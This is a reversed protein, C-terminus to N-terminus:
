IATTSLFSHHLHELTFYELLQTLKILFGSKPVSKGSYLPFISSCVGSIDANRPCKLHLRVNESTGKKHIAANLLLSSPSMNATVFDRKM